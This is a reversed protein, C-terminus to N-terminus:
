IPVFGQHCSRILQTVAQDLTNSISGLRTMAARATSPVSEPTMTFNLVPCVQVQLARRHVRPSCVGVSMRLQWTDDALLM